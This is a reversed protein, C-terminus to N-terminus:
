APRCITRDLPHDEEGLVPRGLVPQLLQQGRLPSAVPSRRNVSYPPMSSACRSRTLAANWALGACLRTRMRSAVSAADSPMSRCFWQWRRTWKSIGQFGFRISCRLPRM